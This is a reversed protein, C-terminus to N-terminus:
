RAHAGRAGNIRRDVVFHFTAGLDEIESEAVLKPDMAGVVDARALDILQDRNATVLWRKFRDFSLDPVRRDHEIRHWLASVFVKEPGFRGDAGVRPIAERVVHLLTDAGRGGPPNTMVTAKIPPPTTPKTPPTSQFSLTPQVPRAGNAVATAPRPGAVAQASTPEYIWRRILARSMTKKDHCPEGIVKEALKVIVKKPDLSSTVGANKALVHARLRSLTVPGDPLGLTEALLR